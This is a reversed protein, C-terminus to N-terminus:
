KFYRKLTEREAPILQNQWVASGGEGLTAAGGAGPGKFGNKDVEHQGDSLGVMDGPALREPDLMLGLDETKKTGLQTEDAKVTLEADGKGRGPGGKGPGEGEGEGEGPKNCLCQTTEKFDFKPANALAERLAEANQKLREALQKMQEPSMNKLAHPDLNKLQEALDGGAKMAGSRLGNMGEAAQKALAKQMEADANQGAEALSALNSRSQELQSGLEQLSKGMEDRLHDAAELSAHQYWQDQPRQLLEEIKAEVAALSKEDVADDQKLKDVWEEVQAVSGPKEIQQSKRVSGQSVPVLFAASFVAVAMLLQATMRRWQWRVPLPLVEPLAPWEARGVAAASLGAHLRLADELRVRTQETSEYRGRARWAALAALLMVAGGSAWALVPLEVLAFTRLLLVVVAGTLSLVLLMPLWTSLWWALNIRRTLRRIALDWARQPMNQQQM